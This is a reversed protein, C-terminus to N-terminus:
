VEGNLYQYLHNQEYVLATSQNVGNVYYKSMIYTQNALSKYFAGGFVASCILTIEGKMNCQFSATRILDYVVRVFHFHLLFIDSM